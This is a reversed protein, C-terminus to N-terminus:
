LAASPALKSTMQGTQAPLLCGTTPNGSFDTWCMREYDYLKCTRVIRRYEALTLAYHTTEHPHQAALAAQSEPLDFAPVLAAHHHAPHAMAAAYLPLVDGFPITVHATGRVPGSRSRWAKEDAFWPIDPHTHNLYFSVAGLYNWIAFPIAWGFTLVLWLPRQPTLWHGLYAIALGVSLFGFSAILSDPLHRAWRARAHPKLPLLMWPLWIAGYYYFIPGAASRYIRELQRRIGSASRYDQPSMPTWVPDVGRVNNRRHHMGNHAHRWLSVSHGLPIFCIRGLWLNLPRSRVLAGHCGDHGVIFLMAVMVGNLVSFFLNVIIPFPAIADVLTLLYLGFYLGFVRLGRADSRTRTAAAVTSGSNSDALAHWNAADVV